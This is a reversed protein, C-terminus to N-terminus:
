GACPLQYASQPRSKTILMVTPIIVDAMTKKMINRKNLRQIDSNILKSLSYVRLLDKKDSVIKSFVASETTLASRRAIHPQHVVNSAGRLKFPNVDREFDISDEVCPRIVDM